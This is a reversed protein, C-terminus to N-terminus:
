MRARSWPVELERLMTKLDSPESSFGPVIVTNKLARWFYPDALIKAYNAFGVYTPSQGFSSAHFSLWLVYVGPVLIMAALMALAPLVFPVGARPNQSPLRAEAM